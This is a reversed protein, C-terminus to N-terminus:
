EDPTDESVRGTPGDVYGAAILAQYAPDEAPVWVGPLESELVPILVWGEGVLREALAWAKARLWARLQHWWPARESM